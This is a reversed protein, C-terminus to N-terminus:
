AYGNDAKQNPKDAKFDCQLINPAIKGIEGKYSHYKRIRVQCKINCDNM